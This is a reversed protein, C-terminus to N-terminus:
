LCVVTPTVNLSFYSNSNHLVNENDQHCSIPSTFTCCMRLITELLFVDSLRLYRHSHTTNFWSKDHGYHITVYECHNQWSIKVESDYCLGHLLLTIWSHPSLMQCEDTLYGTESISCHTLIPWNSNVCKGLQTVATAVPLACVQMLSFAASLPFVVWSIGCGEWSQETGHEM